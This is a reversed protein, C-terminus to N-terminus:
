RRPLFFFFSVYSIFIFCLMVFCFLVCPLHCTQRTYVIERNGLFAARTTFSDPISLSVQLFRFLPLYHLSSSLTCCCLLWTRSAHLYWDSTVYILLIIATQYTATTATLLPQWCCKYMSFHQPLHAYFTGYFQEICNNFLYIYPTIYISYM